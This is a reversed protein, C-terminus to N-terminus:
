LKSIRDRNRVHTHLFLHISGGTGASVDPDIGQVGCVTELLKKSASSQITEKENVKRREMVKKKKKKM